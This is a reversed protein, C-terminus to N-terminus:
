RGTGYRVGEKLTKMPRTIYEMSPIDHDDEVQRKVKDMLVKPDLESLNLAYDSVFFNYLSRYSGYLDKERSRSPIRYLNMEEIGRLTEAECAREYMEIGPYIHMRLFNRAETRRAIAKRKESFRMYMQSRYPIKLKLLKGDIEVFKYGRKMRVELMKSYAPIFDVVSIKIVDLALQHLGDKYRMQAKQFEDTSPLFEPCDKVCYVHRPNGQADQVLARAHYDDTCQADWGDVPIFDRSWSCGTTKCPVANACYWCISQNRRTKQIMSQNM